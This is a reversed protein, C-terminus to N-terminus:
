REQLRGRRLRWEPKGCLGTRMSEKFRALTFTPGGKDHYFEVDETFYSAMKEVDCENYAVWFLSDHDYIANTIEDADAPQGNSQAQVIYALMIFCASLLQARFKM